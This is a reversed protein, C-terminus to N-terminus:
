RRLKPVQLDIQVCAHASAHTHTHTHIHHDCDYRVLYPGDTEIMLRDPPILHLLSALEAGGREPRDDCVRRALCACVCVCVCVSLCDCAAVLRIDGAKLVM